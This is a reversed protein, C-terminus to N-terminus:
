RNTKVPLKVHDVYLNIFNNSNITMGKYGITTIPPSPHTTGYSVLIENRQNVALATGFGLLGNVTRTGLGNNLSIRADYSTSTLRIEKLFNLGLGTSGGHPDSVEEYIDMWVDTQLPDNIGGGTWNRFDYYAIVVSGDNAITMSNWFAQQNGIPINSPTRNIQVSPSWTIGEDVSASLVIRPFGRAVLPDSSIDTNGAMYSMYVRGTYPSVVLPTALDGSFIANGTFLPPGNGAPDHPFPDIFQETAGAVRSWTRGKDASRVVAKDWNTNAANGTFVPSGIKPYQRHISVLLVNEDYVVISATFSQGRPPSFNTDLHEAVWVPDDTMSYIQRRSSWTKGGDESRVYFVNGDIRAPFSSMIYVMHLLKPNEPDPVLRM